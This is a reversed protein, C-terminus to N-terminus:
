SMSNCSSTFRFTSAGRFQNRYCHNRQFRDRLVLFTFSIRSGLVDFCVVINVDGVLVGFGGGFGGGVRIGIGVPLGGGVRLGTVVQVGVGTGVEVGVGLGIVLGVGSEVVIVAIFCFL